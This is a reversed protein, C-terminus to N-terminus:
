RQGEANSPKPHLVTSVKSLLNWSGDVLTGQIGVARTESNGFNLQVEGAGSVQRTLTNMSLHETQLRSDERENFGNVKGELMLTDNVGDLVANEADLTAVLANKEYSTVHIPKLLVYSGPEIEPEERSDTQRFEEFMSLTIGPEEFDEQGEISALDAPDLSEGLENLIAHQILPPLDLQKHDGFHAEKAKLSLQKSGQESYISIQLNSASRKLNRNNDRPEDDTSLTISRRDWGLDLTYIGIIVISTALAVRNRRRRRKRRDVQQRWNASEIFDGSEANTM